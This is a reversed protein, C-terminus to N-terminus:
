RDRRGDRPGPTGRRPRLARDFFGVVRREYERPREVIGKMHGGSPVEWLQKPARAAAFLEPNNNRETGQQGDRAYIMLLPTPAADAVLHRLRPPPTHGSFVSVAATLAAQTVTAGISHDAGPMDREEAASRTGAGESVVAHLGDREAAHELM